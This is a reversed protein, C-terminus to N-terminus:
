LLPPPSRLASLSVSLQAVRWLNAVVQNFSRKSRRKIRIEIGFIYNSLMRQITHTPLGVWLNKGLLFPLKQECLFRCILIKLSQRMIGWASFLKFTRWHVFPQVFTTYRCRLLFHATPVPIDFARRSFFALRFPTHQTTKNIIVDWYSSQLSTPCWCISVTVLRLLSCSFSYRLPTKFTISLFLIM